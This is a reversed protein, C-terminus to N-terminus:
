AELLDLVHRILGMAIVPRGGASINARLQDALGGILLQVIQRDAKVVDLGTLEHSLLDIGAVYTEVGERGAALIEVLVVDAYVPRDVFLNLLRDAANELDDRTKPYGVTKRIAGIVVLHAELFAHEKSKFHDYFTRRSVGALSIIDEVSMSNFGALSAVDITANIIRDHQNQVVFERSLGHRGAPLQHEGRIARPRTKTRM